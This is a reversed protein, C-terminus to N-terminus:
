FFYLHNEDQVYIVTVVTTNVNKNCFQILVTFTQAIKPRTLSKLIQCLKQFLFPMKLNLFFFM